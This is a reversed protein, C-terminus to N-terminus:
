KGEHLVGGKKKSLNRSHMFSNYSRIEIGMLHPLIFTKEDAPGYTIIGSPKLREVAESVEEMFLQRGDIRKTFGNTGIAIIAGEPYAALSDYTRRDGLRVNPIVKIGSNGYFFTIALNLWIQHKQVVLPMNDFPSCDMGIVAQYRRLKDAYAKPNNLVPQFNQDTCYFSMATNLPDIVRTRQDWQAIGDPFRDYCFEKPIIPYGEGDTREANEILYALYVDRLCPIKSKFTKM